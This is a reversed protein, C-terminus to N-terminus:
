MQDRSLAEPSISGPNCLSETGVNTTKKNRSPVLIQCIDSKQDKGGEKKLNKKILLYSKKNVFM